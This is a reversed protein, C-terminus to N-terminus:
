LRMWPPLLLQISAVISMQLLEDEYSLTSAEFLNFTSRPPHYCSKCCARQIVYCISPLKIQSNSSLMKEYNPSEVLEREELM